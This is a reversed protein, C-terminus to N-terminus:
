MPPLRLVKRGLPTLRILGTDDEEVHKHKLWYVLISEERKTRDGLMAWGYCGYGAWIKDALLRRFLEAKTM